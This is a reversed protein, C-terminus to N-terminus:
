EWYALWWRLGNSIALTAGLHVAAFALHWAGLSSVAQYVRDVALSAQLSILLLVLLSVLIGVVGDVSGLQWGFVVLMSLSYAGCTGLLCYVWSMPEQNSKGVPEQGIGRE